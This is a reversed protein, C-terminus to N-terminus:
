LNRLTVRTSNNLQINRGYVKKSLNVTLLVSRAQTADATTNDSSDYFTFSLNNIDNSFLRDAPCSSSSSATPCTTIATNGSALPNALVRKYLANGSLFYILENRYPYGTTSDIIINRGSDIAPNEIIIINSPDSTVWGGAPAHTDTLANTTSIADSLRIDETMQTLITEADLAMDATAGAQQANAFYYFTATFLALTLFGAVVVSISLEIITFGNQDPRLRV